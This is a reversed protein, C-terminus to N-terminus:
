SEYLEQLKQLYIKAAAQRCPHLSKLLDGEKVWRWNSHDWHNIKVEPNDEKIKIIVLSQKQGKYGYHRKNKPNSYKGLEKDFDYRYLNKYSAVVEGNKLGGEEELEKLAAQEISLNDTGGQILQWHHVEDCREVILIQRGLHNDLIPMVAVNPRYLKPMIFIWVIAKSLFIFTARYIRRWRHRPEQILRWLWELGIQRWLKPARKIKGTLFDFAGGLGISVRNTTLHKQLHFLSKEQIPAGLLSITLEPQFNIIEQLHDKTFHINDDAIVLFNLNPYHNKLYQSIDTSSSLSHPHNIILVKRNKDDAEKLLWPLLDAGTQRSLKQRSLWAAIKLGFGDALSLEAHNLIYFLEEDDQSLLIIEPNPTVILNNKQGNYFAIIKEKIKTQSYQGTKIGLINAM